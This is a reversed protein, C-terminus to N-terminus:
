SRIAELYGRNTAVTARISEVAAITQNMQAADIWPATATFDADTLNNGAPSAGTAYADADWETKLNALGDIEGIFSEVAAVYRRIFSSKKQALDAM